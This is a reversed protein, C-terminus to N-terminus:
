QYHDGLLVVSKTVHERSVLAAEHRYETLFHSPAGARILSVQRKIYHENATRQCKHNSRIVNLINKM